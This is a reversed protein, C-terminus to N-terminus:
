YLVAFLLIRTILVGLCPVGKIKLFERLVTSMRRNALSGLPLTELQSRCIWSLANVSFTWTPGIATRRGHLVFESQVDGKAM